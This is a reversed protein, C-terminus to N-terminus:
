PILSHGTSAERQFVRFIFIVNTMSNSVLIGPRPDSGLVGFSHEVRVKVVLGFPMPSPKDIQREITSNVSAPQRNKWGM